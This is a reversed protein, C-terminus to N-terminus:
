LPTCALFLFSSLHRRLAIPSSSTLFSPSHLQPPLVLPPPLSLLRSWPPSHFSFPLSYPSLCFSRDRRSHLLASGRLTVGVYSGLYFGTLPCLFALSRSCPRSFTPFLRHWRHALVTSHWPLGSVVRLFASCARRLPPTAFPTSPRPSSRFLSAWRFCLSFPTSPLHTICTLSVLLHRLPAVCTLPLSSPFGPGAGILSGLIFVPPTCQFPRFVSDVM